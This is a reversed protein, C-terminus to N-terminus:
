FIIINAFMIKRFDCIRKNFTLTTCSSTKHLIGFNINILHTIYRKMAVIVLLVLLCIIFGSSLSLIYIRTSELILRYIVYLMLSCCCCLVQIMKPWSRTFPKHHKNQALHITVDYDILSPQITLVNGMRDVKFIKLIINETIVKNMFLVFNFIKYWSNSNKGLDLARRAVILLTFITM